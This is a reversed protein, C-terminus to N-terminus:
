TTKSHDSLHQWDRGINQKMKDLYAQELDVGTYNALKLIFALMDALENRLTARHRTIAEQHAEKTSRGDVLLGKEERQIKVLETALEGMEEALLLYNFYPDKDFGRLDDFQRHFQQFTPLRGNSLAALQKEMSAPKIPKQETLATEILRVVHNLDAENTMYDLTNVEIQLVPIEQINSLWADYAAALQRIYEPDMDREYPRDRQMIRRMLEEHSARLYVILDPKPIKEGLNGTRRM